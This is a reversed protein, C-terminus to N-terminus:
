ALELRPSGGLTFEDDGGSYVRGPVKIIDEGLGLRSRCVQVAQRGAQRGTIWWGGRWSLPLHIAHSGM